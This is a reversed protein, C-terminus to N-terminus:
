SILLHTQKELHISLLSARSDRFLGDAIMLFLLSILLCLQKSYYRHHLSPPELTANQIVNKIAMFKSQNAKRNNFSRNPLFNSQFPDILKNLVPRLRSVFIKTLIKYVTNCLSIPRFPTITEPCNYPPLLLQIGQHLSIDRTSNHSSAAGQSDVKISHPYQFKAM